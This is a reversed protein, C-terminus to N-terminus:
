AQPVTFGDGQMQNYKYTTCMHSQIHLCQHGSPLGTLRNAGQFMALNWSKHIIELLRASAHRLARFSTTSRTSIKLFHSGGRRHSLYQQFYLFTVLGVNWIEIKTSIQIISSSFPQMVYVIHTKCSIILMNWKNIIIQHCFHVSYMFALTNLM